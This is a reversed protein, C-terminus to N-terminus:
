RERKSEREREYLYIFDKFIVVFNVKVLYPLCPLTVLCDLRSLYCALGTTSKVPTACAASADERGQERLRRRDRGTDPLIRLLCVFTVEPGLLM